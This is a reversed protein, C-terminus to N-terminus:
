EFYFTFHFINSTLKNIAQTFIIDHEDGTGKENIVNMLGFSAKIEMSFRFYTLYMDAGVGGEIYFDMPNLVIKDKKSKALDIRGNIGGVLYPKFNHQRVASYRVLLPFELFTSKIEIVDEMKKDNQIFVMDRQGFSIGPLFRLDWHKKLRLNSVIGINLGPQLNIVDGYIPVDGNYNNAIGSNLVKFDMVNLGLLFGFHIPREDFAPLNPVGNKERQGSVLFPTLLLLLVIGVKYYTKM